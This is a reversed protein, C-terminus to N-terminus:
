QNRGYFLQKFKQAASSIAPRLPRLFLWLGAALRYLPNRVDIHRGNRILGTLVGIIQQPRLPGEIETQNDGVMYFGSAATKYIRHLVLIGSSRRYLAVDGRRLVRDKASCILAEDRGPVFLPYMSFGEPKLKITYGGALLKEIDAPSSNGFMSTYSISSINKQAM